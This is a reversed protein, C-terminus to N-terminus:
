TLACCSESLRIKRADKLVGIANPIKDLKFMLCAIRNFFNFWPGHNYSGDQNQWNNLTANKNTSIEYIKSLELALDVNLKRQETDRWRPKEVEKCTKDIAQEVFLKFKDLSDMFQMTSLSYDTARIHEKYKFERPAVEEIISSYRSLSSDAFLSLEKIFNGTRDLKDILLYLEKQIKTNGPYSHEGEEYLFYHSNNFNHYMLVKCYKTLLGVDILIDTEFGDLAAMISDDSIYDLSSFSLIESYCGRNISQLVSSFYDTSFTKNYEEFSMGGGIEFYWDYSM